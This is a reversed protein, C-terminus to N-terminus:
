ACATTSFLNSKRYNDILVQCYQAYKAYAIFEIYNINNGKNNPRFWSAPINFDVINIGLMLM